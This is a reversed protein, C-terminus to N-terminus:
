VLDDFPFSQRLRAQFPVSWQAVVCCLFSFSRFNLNGERVKHNILLRSFFEFITSTKFPVGQLPAAELRAPLRSDLVSGKM